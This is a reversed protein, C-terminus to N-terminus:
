TDRSALDRVGAAALMDRLSADVGLWPRWGLVRRARATDLYLVDRAGARDVAPGDEVVDVAAGSLEALRHVLARVPVPAGRGVNVTLGPAEARGAAAVVAAAVDRVDVYDREADLRGMRLRVPGAAAALRAAVGGLLSAAPSGPGYVNAVRLVVADLGAARVLETGRLKSAGYPTSPVPPHEEPIAGGAPAPGYEHVTGLHVLRPPSPLTALAALVNRVLEANTRWMDRESARWVAGAANVVTDATGLVTALRAVDIGTLDLPVARGPVGSGPAARRSVRVVRDGAGDFAACVHRGVFGNGGLVVISRSM